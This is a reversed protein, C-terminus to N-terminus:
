PWTRWGWTQLGLKSSPAPHGHRRRDPAPPATGSCRKKFIPGGCRERFQQLHRMRMRMRARCLCARDGFITELAATSLVPASGLRERLASSRLAIVAEPRSTAQQVAFVRKRNISIVLRRFRGNVRVLVRSPSMRATIQPEQSLTSFDFPNVRPSPEAINGRSCIVM